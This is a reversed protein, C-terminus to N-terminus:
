RGPHSRVTRRLAALLLLTLTYCGRRPSSHAGRRQAKEGIAPPQVGRARRRRGRPSPGTGAREARHAGRVAVLRPSREAGGRAGCRPAGVVVLVAAAGEVRSVLESGVVLLALRGVTVPGGGVRGSPRAGWRSPRSGWGSSSPPPSRGGRIRGFSTRGRCGPRPPLSLALASTTGVGLLIWGARSRGDSSGERPGRPSPRGGARTEGAGAGGAREGAARRLRGRLHARARTLPALDPGSPRSGRGPGGRQHAGLRRAAACGSPCAPRPALAGAGPLGGDVAGLRRAARARAVGTWAAREVAAVPLALFLLSSLLVGGMVLFFRRFMGSRARDSLAGTLPEIM